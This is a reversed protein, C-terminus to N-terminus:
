SLELRCAICCIFSQTLAPPSDAVVHQMVSDSCLKGSLLGVCTVPQEYKQPLTCSSHSGFVFYDHALDVSSHMPVPGDVCLLM